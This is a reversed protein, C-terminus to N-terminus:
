RTLGTKTIVRLAVTSLGAIIFGISAGSPMDTFLTAVGSLTETVGVWLLKSKYWEKNM